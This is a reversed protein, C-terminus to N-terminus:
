KNRPNPEMGAKIVPDPLQIARRPDDVPLVDLLTATNNADLERRYVVIGFRKLDYWRLGDFLTEIRRIHLLCHLFNEQEASVIPTEPNLQKKVTPQEWPYSHPDDPRDPDPTPDSYFANIVERTLTVTSSTHTSVWLSLDALAKDYEERMIYAEARCLLTEETTFAVQVTRSYGIGAVRDTYQFLNPYKAVCAYGGYNTYTSTRHHFMDSRFVGWPGDSRSVETSSLYQSYMYKKGSATNRFVSGAYSFVPIILLNAEHKPLIYENATLSYDGGLSIFEAVKRLV